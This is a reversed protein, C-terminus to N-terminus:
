IRSEKFKFASRLYPLIGLKGLKQYILSLDLGDKLYVLKIRNFLNITNLRKYLYMSDKREEEGGDLVLIIDGKARLQLERFLVNSIVKGLLPISNPTVIHDFVGEVLYITSDWNVKQENFIIIEKRADPNRYKMWTWDDFTRAIFYNLEGEANYSPIIIRNKFKGIATFGIDFKHLIKDTLGRARVYALAERYKPETISSESFKKFGVPFEIVKPIEEVDEQKKTYKPAVLLYDKYNQKSGYKKVLYSVNGHMNNREWCAWCKYVGKKYNVELNGKGDGRDLGKDAMCMPCDFGVQSKTEFHKRHVGLFDELIDIIISM